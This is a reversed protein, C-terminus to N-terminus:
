SVLCCASVLSFAFSSLSNMSFEVKDFKILEDDFLGLSPMLRTSFSLSIRLGTALRDMGPFFAIPYKVLVLAINNLTTM